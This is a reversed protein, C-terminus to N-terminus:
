VNYGYISISSDGYHYRRLLNLRGYSEGLSRKSAHSVVVRTDGRTLSSNAIEQMVSDIVPSAYPPDLFIIDYGRDLFRFAREVSCCYVHAQSLFGARELNSRIIDCSSRGQEVFDVWGAGRSLAEIGLSGSGAFLDLVTDWGGEMAELVSFAAGRVRQTVPRTLRHSPARLPCGKAQGSIIRM